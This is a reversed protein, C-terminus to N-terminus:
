LLILQCHKGAIHIEFDADASETGSELVFTAKRGATAERIGKGRVSVQGEGEARIAM